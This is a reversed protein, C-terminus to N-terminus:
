GIIEALQEMNKVTIRKKQVDIIGAKEFRNMISTVTQRTSSIMNAIEEHTLGPEFVVGQDTAVGTERAMKLLLRALRSNVEKFALNLLADNTDKLIVGLIRILNVALGPNQMVIAKFDDLGIYWIEALELVTASAESHMSYIDGPQLITVTIEKGDPSLYSVKVRGSRVLYIYDRSPGSFEIHQKKGFHCQKFYAALKESEDASLGKFLKFENLM